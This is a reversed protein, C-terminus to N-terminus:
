SESRVKSLCTWQCSSLSPSCWTLTRPATCSCWTVGRTVRRVRWPGWCLRQPPAAVAMAMCVSGSLAGGCGPACVHAPCPHQQHCGPGSNSVKVSRLAAPAFGGLQQAVAMFLRAACPLSVQKGIIGLWCGEWCGVVGLCVGVYGRGGEESEKFSDSDVQQNQESWAAM